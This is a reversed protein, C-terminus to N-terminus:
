RQGTHNVHFRPPPSKWFPLRHVHAGPHGVHHIQGVDGFRTTVFIGDGDETWAQFGASRVNQYRNLDTVIAQPVEPIDEMVLNGDNAESRFIEAQALLSCVMLVLGIAIVFNQKVTVGDTNIM